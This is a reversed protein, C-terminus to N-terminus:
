VPLGGPLMLACVPYDSFGKEYTITSGIIDQRFLAQSDLNQGFYFIKDGCLRLLKATFVM